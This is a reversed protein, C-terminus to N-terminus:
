RKGHKKLYARWTVAWKEPDDFTSQDIRHVVSNYPAGKVFDPNEYAEEIVKELAEVYEDLEEKSYSETPEITFPQPVIFPHHSSWLHFGFDAMRLTVDETTVGTDKTLQE